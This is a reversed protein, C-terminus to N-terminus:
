KEYSDTRKVYDSSTFVETGDEYRICLDLVKTHGTFPETEVNCETAIVIADKAHNNTSLSHTNNGKVIHFSFDWLRVRDGIMKKRVDINSKQISKIHDLMSLLEEQTSSKIYDPPSISLGFDEFIKSEVIQNLTDCEENLNTNELRLLKIDSELKDNIDSYHNTLKQLNTISKNKNLNDKALIIGVITICISYFIFLTLM